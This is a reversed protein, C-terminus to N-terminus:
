RGEEVEYELLADRLLLGLILGLVLGLMIRVM